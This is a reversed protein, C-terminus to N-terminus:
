RKGYVECYNEIVKKYPPFLNYNDIDIEQKMKSVYRLISSDSEIALDVLDQGYDIQEM